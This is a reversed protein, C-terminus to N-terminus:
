QVPRNVAVDPAALSRIDSRKELRVPVDPITPLLPYAKLEKKVTTTRSSKSLKQELFRFAKELFPLVRIWVSRRGSGSTQANTVHRLTIGSVVRLIWTHAFGATASVQDDTGGM